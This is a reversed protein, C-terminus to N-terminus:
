EHTRLSTGIYDLSRRLMDYPQVFITFFEVAFPERVRLEALIEEELPSPSVHNRRGMLRWASTRLADLTDIFSLHYPNEGRFGQEDAIMALLPRSVFDPRSKEFYSMFDDFRQPLRTILFGNKYAYKNIQRRLWPPVVPLWDIARRGQVRAAGPPAGVAAAPMAAPASARQSAASRRREEMEKLTKVNELAAHSRKRAEEEGYGKERLTRYVKQIEDVPVGQRLLNDKMTNRDKDASSM